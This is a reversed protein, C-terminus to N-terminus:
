CHAIAATRVQCSGKPLRMQERIAAGAADPQLAGELTPGAEHGRKRVRGQPLAKCCLQLPHAWMSQLRMITSKLRGHCLDPSFLIMAAVSVLRRM